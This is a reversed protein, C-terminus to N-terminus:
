YVKKMSFHYQPLESIAQYVNRGELPDEGRILKCYLSYRAKAIYCSSEPPQLYDGNEVYGQGSCISCYDCYDHKLCETYEKLVVKRWTELKKNNSIISYFSSKKVNGLVMPFSCCPQVNGEPTVAFCNSGAKCGNFNLLKPIKGQNPVELGVYTILNPDRLVIELQDEKLRLNRSCKDGEISDVITVEFQVRANNRDAIDKVQFYTNVNPQLICCKVELSVSRKSLQELVEMSRKWSGPSRTIADHDEALGSYISIGVAHPYLSALRDIDFVIRQANTYIDFAINKQHIYELIEWIIPKSFPDGGTIVIKVVGLDYLEDILQCYDDINMECRNERHSADSLSRIAGPNYCHICKESCSYTLELMATTVLGDENVIDFYAQEADTLDNEDFVPRDNISLEKRKRVCLERYAFSDCYEIKKLSVLGVNSLTWLFLLISEESIGSHNVIYNVDIIDNRKTELIYRVADASYSEFYHCYGEILNYILAVHHKENYRGVVWDPRYFSIGKLVLVIRDELKSQIDPNQIQLLKQLASILSISSTMKCCFDDCFSEVSWREDHGVWYVIRGIECAIMAYQEDLTLGLESILQCNFAIYYESKEQDFYGYFPIPYEFGVNGQKEIFEITISPLTVRVSDLHSYKEIFDRYKNRFIIM